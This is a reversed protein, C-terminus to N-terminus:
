PALADHGENGERRVVQIMVEIGLTNVGPFCFQGEEDIMKFRQRYVAPWGPARVPIRVTAVAGPATEPVDFLEGRLRV